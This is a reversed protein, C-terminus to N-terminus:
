CMAGLLFLLDNGLRTTTRLLSFPRSRAVPFCRLPLGVAGTAALRVNGLPGKGLLAVVKTAM